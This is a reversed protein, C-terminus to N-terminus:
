FRHAAFHTTFGTAFSFPLNIQLAETLLVTAEGLNLQILELAISKTFLSCPATHWNENFVINM